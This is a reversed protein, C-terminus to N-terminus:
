SKRYRALVEDLALAKIEGRRYADLRDEVEKAWLADVRPDTRDLSDLLRNVLGIRDAPPLRLARKELLERDRSKSNGVGRISM